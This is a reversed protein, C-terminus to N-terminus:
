LFMELLLPLGFEHFQCHSAGFTSMEIDFGGFFLQILAGTEVFFDLMQDANGIEHLYKLAVVQQGVLYHETPVLLLLLQLQQGADLLLPYDPLLSILDVNEVVLPPQLPRGVDLLLVVFPYFERSFILYLIVVRGLNLLSERQRLYNLM